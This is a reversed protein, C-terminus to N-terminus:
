FANDRFHNSEIRPGLLRRLRSANKPAYARHDNDFYIYTDKGWSKIKAAWQKLENESYESAYLAKSGHLRLYAFDSTCMELYPFKGASDSICWAIQHRRLASLASDEMWSPHRAEVTYRIGTRLAKCFAEFVAEDFFLSPPLQFLVVGLKEKLPAVTKLFKDLPDQADKLRKIHTIYRSAKVSWLFDDPTRKHWGEFTEPKMQRYFTANLEVTAFSQAYCELWKSSPCDSPYFVGKWHKYNWGSTGVHISQM